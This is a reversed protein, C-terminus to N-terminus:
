REHSCFGFFVRDNEVFLFSKRPGSDFENVVLLYANSGSGAGQALRLTTVVKYSNQNSGHDIVDPRTVYSNKLLGSMVGTRRDVLFQKGIYTREQQQLIAAENANAIAVREITCRYNLLDEAGGQAPLCSAVLFVLRTLISLEQQM